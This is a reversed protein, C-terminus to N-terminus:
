DKAAQIKRLATSPEIKGCCLNKKQRSNDVFLERVSGANQSHTNTGMQHTRQWTPHSRWQGENFNGIHDEQDVLSSPCYRRASVSDMKVFDYLCCIAEVIRECKKPIVHIPRRLSRWKTAVIGFKIM